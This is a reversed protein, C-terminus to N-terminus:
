KKDATTVMAARSIADQIRIVTKCVDPNTNWKDAKAYKSQLFRHDDESLKLQGKAVLGDEIAKHIKQLKRLVDPSGEPVAMQLATKMIDHCVMASSVIVTQPAVPKTEEPADKVARWKNLETRYNEQEGQSPQRHALTKPVDFGPLNMDILYYM